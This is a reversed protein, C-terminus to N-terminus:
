PAPLVLVSCPADRVIQRSVSGLAGPGGQRRSGVVIMAANTSKAARLIVDRARGPEVVLEAAAGLRRKLAGAQSRIRHPQMASEAGLANVLTASAGHAVCLRGALAVVEDSSEGGDSAVVIARGELPGAAAARVVLMPARLRGHVAAAVSGVLVRVLRSRAPAGIVLLDHAALRDLIVEVPSPGPDVVGVAGAGAREVIRAGSRLIAEAHAPSIVAAADRGSGHQATVVLLTVRGGEGALRAAM